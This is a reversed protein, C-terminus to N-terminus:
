QRFVSKCFFIRGKQASHVLHIRSLLEEFQFSCLYPNVFLTLECTNISRKVSVALEMVCEFVENRIM